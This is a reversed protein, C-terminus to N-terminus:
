NPAVEIQRSRCTPCRRRRSAARSAPIRAHSSFRNAPERSPLCTAAALPQRIWEHAPQSGNCNQLGSRLRCRHALRSGLQCRGAPQSFSTGSLGRSVAETGDCAPLNRHRAPERSVDVACVGSVFVSRSVLLGAFSQRGWVSSCVHQIRSASSVGHTACLGDAGLVNTLGWRGAGASFPRNQRISNFDHASM